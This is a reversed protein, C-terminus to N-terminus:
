PSSPSISQKGGGHSLVLAAGAAGAGGLAAYTWGAFSHGSRNTRAAFTTKLPGAGPQAPAFFEGNPSVSVSQGVQIFQGSSGQLALVGMAGDSCNVVFSGDPAKEISASATRERTSPVVVHKGIRMTFGNPGSVSSMVVAGTELEATYEYKGSFVVESRPSIKLSGKGSMNFTAAGSEGTRVKDGSFITIEAPAPSDNVNVEGISTLSGLPEKEKEQAVVRAPGLEPFLFLLAALLQMFGFSRPHSRTQKTGALLM